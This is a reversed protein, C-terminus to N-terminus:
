PRPRPHPYPSVGAPGSELLTAEAGAEVKICNHLIVDSTNSKHLYILSIPKAAKGTVRILVGDTAFATCLAALPREVPSQGRAELVGYLERAWHIDTQAVTALREITVGSLSLDDSAEADFQGDVFVLKLRDITDFAEPQDKAHFVAAEPAGAQILSSPNTYRWYEDRKSPLGMASLRALAQARAAGLWGGSALNLGVIRATLGQENAVARAM